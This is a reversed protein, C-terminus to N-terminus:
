HNNVAHLSLHYKVWPLSDGDVSVTAGTDLKCLTPQGNIGSSVM